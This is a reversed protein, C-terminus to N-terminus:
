EDKQKLLESLSENSKEVATVKIPQGPRARLTGHTVVYDGKKLGNLIEVVGFQRQGIQIERREVTQANPNKSDELKKAVLAFKKDGETIISEEPMILAQREGKSLEVRMLLGPRLLGEENKILARATITRTIPDVRSDISAIKGTFIDGPFARATAEVKVGTRLTKLFVSPISFDLKMVSDDDVTTLMFGPQALTGVSINRLGVVGDFPARIIRKSIRSKIAKVRAEASNLERRSADLDTESAAGRKALPELRKVRRATEEIFFEEESLEAQEQSYDMEILIDGKKVRQGDEFNVKTITETVSSTLEVSENGRLTGLAEVEDAFTQYDIKAVIVPTAPKQGTKGAPQAIAPMSIGIILLTSLLIKKM